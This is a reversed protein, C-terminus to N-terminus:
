HYIRNVMDKESMLNQGQPHIYPSVLHINLSKFPTQLADDFQEEQEEDSEEESEEGQEKEPAETVEKMDNGNIGEGGKLEKPM